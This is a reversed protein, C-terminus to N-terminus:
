WCTVGTAAHASVTLGPPESVHTNLAGHAECWRRAQALMKFKGYKVKRHAAPLRTLAHRRPTLLPPKMATAPYTFCWCDLACWKVQEQCRTCCGALSSGTAVELASKTREKLKKGREPQFPVVNKYCKTHEHSPM